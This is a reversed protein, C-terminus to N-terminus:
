GASGGAFRAFEAASARVRVGKLEFLLLVMVGGGWGGCDVLRRVMLGQVVVLLLVQFGRFDLLVLALGGGDEVVGDRVEVLNDIFLSYTM